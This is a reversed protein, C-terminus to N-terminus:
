KSNVPAMCAEGTNKVSNVFQSVEVADMQADPYPGLFTQVEEVPTNPALWPGIANDGVVVPMRDNVHGVTKNADTTLITFTDIVEGEPSKWTSWLGCFSFFDSGRPTFWFPRKEPRKWEYFGNAPVICRQSKFYNRYAPKEAVTEGRANIMRAGERKDKAWFPLLGWRMPKVLRGEPTDVIVPMLNTPCANYNPKFNFDGQAGYRIRMDNLYKHLGYRGCM